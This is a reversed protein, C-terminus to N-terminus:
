ERLPVAADVPLTYVMTFGDEGTDQYFGRRVGTAKFGNAQFFLQAYVNTERVFISIGTYKNSRLLRDKLAAILSKGVGGRRYQPDVALNLIRFEPEPFEYVVFGVIKTGIEAVLGLCNAQRMQRMFEEESLPNNFSASEIALVSSKLDRRVMIRVRTKQRTVSAM